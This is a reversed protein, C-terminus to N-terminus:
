RMSSDGTLLDNFLGAVRTMIDESTFCAYSNNECMRSSYRVVVLRSSPMSSSRRNTAPIASEAPPGPM